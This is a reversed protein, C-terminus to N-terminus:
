LKVALPLKQPDLPQFVILLLLWGDLIPLKINLMEDVLLGM